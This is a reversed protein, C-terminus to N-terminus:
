ICVVTSIIFYFILFTRASDTLPWLRHGYGVSASIVSAFFLCDIFTRGTYQQKSTEIGFYDGEDSYFVIAGIMLVLSFKTVMLTIKGPITHKFWKKVKRYSQLMPHKKMEEIDSVQM